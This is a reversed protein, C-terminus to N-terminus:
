NSLLALWADAETLDRLILDPDCAALQERDFSGTEVVLVNAEIARACRVDNPTDGIIWIQSADVSEGTHEALEAVAARAVDDRDSHEDGFGGPADMDYFYSAVGFHELKMRAAPRMNGTILGLRVAPMEALRDLVETVYPLLRGQREALTQPLVELFRERYRHFNEQTDPLGHALLHESILSRDTRGAFVIQSSSDVPVNFEAALALTMAQSGAGGTDVLTGDIDFFITHPM